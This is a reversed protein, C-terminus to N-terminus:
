RRVTIKQYIEVYVRWIQNWGAAIWKQCWLLMRSVPKSAVFFCYGICILFVVFVSLHSGIYKEWDTCYAITRMILTHSLYIPMTHQGVRTVFNKGAPMLVALLYVSLTCVAYYSLRWLWAWRYVIQKIDEYPASGMMLKHPIQRYYKVELLFLGALLVVALFKGWWKKALMSIKEKQFFHGMLFFPFLVVTRGVSLVGDAYKDYGFLLSCAISMWLIGPVNKVVPLVTRWILLSLLFWLAFKPMLFSREWTQGWIFKTCLITVTQMVLYPVLLSKCSKKFDPKRCFYGAIFCFGPMAYIYMFERFYGYRSFGDAFITVAHLMVVSMILIARYNDFYYDRTRGTKSGQLDNMDSERELSSARCVMIFRRCVFRFM